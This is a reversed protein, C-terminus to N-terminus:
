ALLRANEENTRTAEEETTKAREKTAREKTAKLAPAKGRREKVLSPARRATWAIARLLSLFNGGRGLAARLLGLLAYRLFFEPLHRAEAHLIYFAFLNKARHYAFLASSNAGEPPEFHFVRASPAVSLRKGAKSARACLETSEGYMFFEERFGGLARLFDARALLAAGDLCKVDFAQAYQGRDEEGEGYNRRKYVGGLEFEGGACRITGSTKNYMLPASLGTSPNEEAHILLRRLCDGDLTVDDETLFIYECSAREIGRNMGGAYGENRENRFLSASAFEAVVRAVEESEESPNDVVIVESPAHTQAYVSQLAERLYAPRKYSLVVVSVSPSEKSANSMLKM